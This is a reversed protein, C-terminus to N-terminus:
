GPDSGKGTLAQALRDKLESDSVGDVAIVKNRGTHGRVVDLASKPVDLARSVVELLARNAEGKHPRAMVKIYLTGERLGVLESRMAGPQVHVELTSKKARAKKADEMANSGGAVDM